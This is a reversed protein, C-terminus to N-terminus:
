GGEEGRPETWRSGASSDSASWDTSSCPCGCGAGGMTVGSSLMCVMVVSLPPCPWGLVARGVVPVPASLLPCETVPCPFLSHHSRFFDPEQNQSIKQRSDLPIWPNTAM